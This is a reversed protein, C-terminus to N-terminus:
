TAGERTTRGTGRVLVFDETPYPNDKIRKRQTQLVEALSFATSEMAGLGSKERQDRDSIDRAALNVRAAVDAKATLM